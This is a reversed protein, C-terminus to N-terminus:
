KILGALYNKLIHKALSDPSGAGSLSLEGSLSLLCVGHMCVWMTKAAKMSQKKKLGYDQFAESFDIFFRNLKEQYWDPASVRTELDTSWLFSFLKPHDQSIQIYSTVFHNLKNKKRALNKFTIEGFLDIIKDCVSFRLHNMNDFLYYITGVTYGMEKAVDRAKFGDSGHKSVLEFAKEIALEKLEEPSHDSRRAM